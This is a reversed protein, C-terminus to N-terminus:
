KRFPEGFLLICYTNLASILLPTDLASTACCQIVSPLNIILQSRLLTEQPPCRPKRYPILVGVSAEPSGPLALSHRSPRDKVRPELQVDSSDSM